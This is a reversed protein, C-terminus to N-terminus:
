IIELGHDNQHEQKNMEKELLVLLLTLKKTNDFIDIHVKSITLAIPLASTSM